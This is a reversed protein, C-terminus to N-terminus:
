LNYKILTRKSVFAHFITDFVLPDQCLYKAFSAHIGRRTRLFTELIGNNGVEIIGVKTHTLAAELQEAVESSLKQSQESNKGRFDDNEKAAQL